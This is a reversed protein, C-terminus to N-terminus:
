PIMWPLDLSLGVLVGQMGRAEAVVGSAMEVPLLTARMTGVYITPQEPAPPIYTRQDAGLLQSPVSRPAGPSLVGEGGYRSLDAFAEIADLTDSLVRRFGDDFASTPTLARSPSWPLPEVEVEVPAQAWAAAPAGLVLLAAVIGGLMGKRGLKRKWTEM